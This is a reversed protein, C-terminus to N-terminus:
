QKRALMADAVKYATEALSNPTWSEGSAAMGQMAAIAFRDRLTPQAVMVNRIVSEIEWRIQQLQESDM